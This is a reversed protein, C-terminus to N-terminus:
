VASLCHHVGGRRLCVEQQPNTEATTNVFADSAKCGQSCVYKSRVPPKRPPHPINLLLVSTVQTAAGKKPRRPACQPSLVATGPRRAPLLQQVSPPHRMACIKGGGTCLQLQKGDVDGGAPACVGRGGPVEVQTLLSSTAIHSDASPHRPSLSTPPASVKGARQSHGSSPPAGRPPCHFM